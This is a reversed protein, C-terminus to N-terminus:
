PLEQPTTTTPPSCAQRAAAAAEDLMRDATDLINMMRICGHTVGEYLRLTVPVGAASLRQAYAQGEDHLVDHEALAIWAPPQGSLDPANIPSIRPDAWQAAPAYHGYFWRMDQRTLFPYDGYQQYSAGAMAADTAPYVLLQLAIDIERCLAASAVTALNAGASDGAVVLPLDLGIEPNLRHLGGAAVFRLSDEVDELGAPFPHEPALRYDLLLVACGSRRALHRALADFDDLAGVVWGGGHLYVLVGEPTTAPM